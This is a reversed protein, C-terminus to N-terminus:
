SRGRRSRGAPPTRARCITAQGVDLLQRYVTGGRELRASSEERTMAGRDALAAM